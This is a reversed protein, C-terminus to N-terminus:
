FSKETKQSLKRILHVSKVIFVFFLHVTHLNAASRNYVLFVAGVAFFALSFLEFIYPVTDFLMKGSFYILLWCVLMNMCTSRSFKM